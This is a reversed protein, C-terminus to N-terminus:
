LRVKYPGFNDLCASKLEPFLQFAEPSKESWRSVLDSSISFNTEMQSQVGASTRRNARTGPCKAPFDLVPPFSASLGEAPNEFIKALTDLISPFTSLLRLKRTRAAPVLNTPIPLFQRLPRGSALFTAAPQQFNQFTKDAARDFVCSFLSSNSPRVTRGDLEYTKQLPVRFCCRMVM